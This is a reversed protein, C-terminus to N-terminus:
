FSVTDLPETAIITTTSSPQIKRKRRRNVFFFLFDMKMDCFIPTTPVLPRHPFPPPCNTGTPALQDGLIALIFGNKYSLCLVTPLFSRRFFPGTPFPHLDREPLDYKITYYNPLYVNVFCVPCNTGWFPLFLDM